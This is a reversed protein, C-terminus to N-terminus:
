GRDIVLQSYDRQRDPYGVHHTMLDLKEVARARTEPGMWALTGLDSRLTARVDQLLGTVQARKDASFYRDVYLQGLAFGLAGNVSHLVREWRPEDQTVGTLRSRFALKERVFDASLYPAAMDILHWRLYGKWGDLSVTALLHDVQQFFPPATVNVRDIDP